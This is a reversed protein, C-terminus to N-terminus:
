EAPNYEKLVELIRTYENKWSAYTRKRQEIVTKEMGIIVNGDRRFLSGESFEDHIYAVYEYWGPAGEDLVTVLATAFTLFFETNEPDGVIKRSQDGGYRGYKLLHRMRNNESPEQGLERNDLHQRGFEIRSDSHAKLLVKSFETICLRVATEPDTAKSRALTQLYELRERFTTGNYDANLVTEIANAFEPQDYISEATNLTVSEQSAPVIVEHPPIQM